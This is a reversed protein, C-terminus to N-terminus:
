PWGLLMGRLELYRDSLAFRALDALDPRELAAAPDTPSPQGPRQLRALAGLAGHLEGSHLLAVRNATRELASAFAVPDLGALEAASEPGLGALFDRMSPPVSRELAALFAGARDLPLGRSPPEGGAFRSALEGLILVDRPAFKGVLPWCAGALAVSRAVLFSIAGPPLSGVDAALVLSPPRTNELAAYLGPRRGCFLALPRGSIARQAAELPGQLAPASAPAIRDAPGVGYRALDVPFLPELYPALVSLLRATPGNAAPEAVRSRVEPDIRYALDLPRPAPGVRQVFRLLADAVHCRETRAAREGGSAAGASLEKSLIAVARAARVEAPRDRLEALHTGLLALAQDHRSARLESLAAETSLDEPDLAAAKQLLLAARDPDALRGRAIEALERYREAASEADSAVVADAYAEGLSVSEELHGLKEAVRALGITLELHDPDIERALKLRAYAAGLEGTDALARASALLPRLLDAISPGQVPEAAPTGSVADGAADPPPREPSPLPTAASAARALLASARGDEGAQALSAAARSVLRAVDPDGGVGEDLRLVALSELLVAADEGRDDVSAALRAGMELMRRRDAPRGQSVAAEAARRAAALAGPLDGEAARADALGAMASADAPDATLCSEYARAAPGARGASLLLDARTRHCAAAEAPVAAARIALIADTADVEGSADALAGRFALDDVPWAEFTARATERLRAPDGAEAFAAAAERLHGARVPGAPAAEAIELFAEARARPDDVLAKGVARAAAGDFPDSRCLALLYPASEAGRGLASLRGAAELLPGRGPPPEALVALLAPVALARTADDEADTLVEAARLRLRARADPDPERAARDLLGRGLEALRGTSALLRDLEAEASPDGPSADLASRLAELAGATDGLPDRLVRSLAVLSEARAAGQARSARAALIEALIPAGADGRAFAVAELDGWSGTDGPDRGLARRLAQEAGAGDGADLFARATRRALSAARSLDGRVVAEAELAELAPVAREPTGNRLAVAISEERAAAAGPLDGSAAMSSAAALLAARLGEVEPSGPFSSSGAAAVAARASALRALALELEAAPLGSAAEEARRLLDQERAPDLAEIRAAVSARALLRARRRRSRLRDADGVLRELARARDPDLRFRWEVVEADLPRLELLRDLTGLALSVDGSEEALEALAALRDGQAGPDLSAQGAGLLAEHLALAERVSGGAHLLEALMQGVFHLDGALEHARRAARLATPLDGQERALRAADRFATAATAPDPARSAFTELPEAWSLRGLPAPAGRRLAAQEDALARDAPLRSLAEHFGADADAHRGAAALLRARELLRAGANGPELAALRDLLDIVAAADGVRRAMALCAETATVDRPALTRAEEAHIRAAAVDDAGLDLESLRLLLAPRQGTPAAPVLGALAEREARPDAHERAIAALAAWADRAEDRGLGLALARRLAAEGEVPLGAALAAQGALALRLAADPDGHAQADAASELLAMAEAGPRQWIARHVPGDGRIEHRLGSEDPVPWGSPALAAGLIEPLSAPGPLAEPSGASVVLRVLSCPLARFQVTGGGPDFGAPAGHVELELDLLALGGGIPGRSLGVRVRGRELRLELRPLPPSAVRDPPSPAPV